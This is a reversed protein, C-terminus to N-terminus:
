PRPPKPVHYRLYTSESTHCSQRRDRGVDCFHGSRTSNNSDRLLLSTGSQYGNIQGFDFWKEPIMRRVDLVGQEVQFLDLQDNRWTSSSGILPKDPDKAKSPTRPEATIRARQVKEAAM